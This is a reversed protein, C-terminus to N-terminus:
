WKKGPEVTSESPLTPQLKAQRSQWFQCIAWASGASAVFSRRSSGTRLRGTRASWLSQWPTAQVYLSGVIQSSYM